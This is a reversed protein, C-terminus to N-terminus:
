IIKLGTKRIQHTKLLLENEPTKRRMRGQITSRKLGSREAAESVTILGWETNILVNRRQNRNQEKQTAWKCNSKEYNGNVDMREISLGEVYTGFMDNKFVSYNEWETSVTIGRGGYNKYEDCLPYSCRHRMDRWVQYFKTKHDGHKTM